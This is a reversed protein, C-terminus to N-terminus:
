PVASPTPDPLPDPVATPVPAPTAQATPEPIPEVTPSATPEATPEVAPEPTTTPTPQPTTEPTAEPTGGPTADPTAEATPELSPSASDGPDASAPDSPSPSPPPMRGTIETTRLSLNGVISRYFGGPNSGGHDPDMAYRAGSKRASAYPGLVHGHYNPAKRFMEWATRDKTFLQRVYNGPSSPHGDALVVGAGARLFGAGFNDVRRKSMSTTGESRGPEANGSAYCLRYLLVAANPALHISEKIRSEGYYIRRRGDAGSAPDLAMGDMKLPNFPGYPSPYGWGHGFYVLVSAGAAAQKVKSWTARPTFLVVVNSTYKRAETVVEKAESKYSANHSGVPGVVVVVKASSGAHILAPLALTAVLLVATVLAALRGTHVARARRAPQPRPRDADTM